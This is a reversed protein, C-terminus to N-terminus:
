GPCKVGFVEEAAGHLYAELRERSVGRTRLITYVERLYAGPDLGDVVPYDTGYLVKGKPLTSAVYAALEPPLASTDVRVGNFRRALHLAEETFVGPAIASYGGAHAIVIVADRHERLLGELRSPDGYRCFAPLEWIGPDCGAHVVVPVGRKEAVELVIRMSPDDLYRLQLTSIVKFGGAGRDLANHLWKALDEGEMGLNVGALITYDGRGTGLAQCLPQLSRTLLITSAMLSEPSLAEAIWPAYKRILGEARAHERVVEDMPISPPKLPPIGLIVAAHAGSSRLRRVLGRIGRPGGPSHTHADIVCTRPERM